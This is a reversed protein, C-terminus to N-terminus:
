YLMNEIRYCELLGMDARTLRRKQENYFQFYISAGGQTSADGASREAAVVYSVICQHLQNPLEPRDTANSLPKPLFRYRVAVDGAADARIMGTQEGGEFAVSKGNRSIHLLKVCLRPLSDISFEGGQLRITDTRYQAFAKALDQQAINAYQTFAGRYVDFTQSDIGRRLQQLAAM